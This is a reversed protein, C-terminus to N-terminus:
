TGINAPLFNNMAVGVAYSTIIPWLTVEGPYAATLIGYYSVGCFVTQGTQFVLAAITYGAPIAEIQKWLNDLWGKVDVGALNLLEVVVVIAVLWVAVKFLRRKRSPDHFPVVPTLAGADAM